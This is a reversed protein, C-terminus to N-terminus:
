LIVVLCEDDNFINQSIGGACEYITPLDLTNIPVKFYCGTIKRNVFFNANDKITFMDNYSVERLGDIFPSDLETVSLEYETDCPEVQTCILMYNKCMTDVMYKYIFFADCADEHFYNVLPNTPDTDRIYKKSYKEYPHRYGEPLEAHKWAWNNIEQIHIGYEHMFYSLVTSRIENLTVNSIHSVHDARKGKVTIVAEIGVLYIQANAFYQTFFTRLEECYLTTDEIPGKSRNNGSFEVIEIVRGDPTGIVTAFNTKSPDMAVVIEGNYDLPDVRSSMDFNLTRSNNYQVFM